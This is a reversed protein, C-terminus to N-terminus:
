FRRRVCHMSARTTTQVTRVGSWFWFQIQDGAQLLKQTTITMGGEATSNVPHYNRGIYEGTRVLKIWGYIEGTTAPSDFRYVITPVWLGAYTVTFNGSSLSVGNGYSSSGWATLQTDVSNSSTATSVYWEGTDDLSSNPTYQTM